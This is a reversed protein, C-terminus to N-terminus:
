ENTKTALKHQLCFIFEDSSPTSTVHTNCYNLTDVEGIIQRYLVDLDHYRGVFMKTKWSKAMDNRVLKFVTEIPCTDLKYTNALDFVTRLEVKNDFGLESSTLRILTIEEPNQQREKFERSNFWKDIITKTVASTTDNHNRFDEIIQEATENGATFTLTREKIKEANGLKSVLLAVLDSHEFVENESGFLEKFYLFNKIGLKLPLKLSSLTEQFNKHLAIQAEVSEKADFKELALDIPNKLKTIEAIAATLNQCTLRNM